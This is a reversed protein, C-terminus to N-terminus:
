RLRGRLEPAGAPTPPDYGLLVGADYVLLEPQRPTLRRRYDELRLLVSVRSLASFIQRGPFEQAAYDVPQYHALVGSSEVGRARARRLMVDVHQPTHGVHGPSHPPAEM